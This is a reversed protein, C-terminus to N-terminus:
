CVQAADGDAARQSGALLASLARWFPHGTGHVRGGAPLQLRELAQQLDHGTSSYPPGTDRFRSIPLVRHHYRPCAGVAGLM